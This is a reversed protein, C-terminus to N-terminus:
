RPSLCIMQLSCEAMFAIAGLAAASLSGVPIHLVLTGIFQVNM